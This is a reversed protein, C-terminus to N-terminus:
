TFASATKTWIKGSSRVPPFIAARTSSPAASAAIPVSEVDRLLVCEEVTTYSEIRVNSFLLSRCVQAGSIICGESVMIRDGAVASTENFVFKAPPLQEQYTWIPWQQDYLNLKPTM